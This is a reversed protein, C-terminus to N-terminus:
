VNGNDKERENYRALAAIAQRGGNECCDEGDEACTRCCRLHAVAEALEGALAKYKDRDEALALILQLQKSM